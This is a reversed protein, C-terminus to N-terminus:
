PEHEDEHYRCLSLKRPTRAKDSNRTHGAPSEQRLPVTSYLKQRGDRLRGAHSLLETDQAGTLM